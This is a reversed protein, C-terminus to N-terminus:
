YGIGNEPGLNVQALLGYLQAVPIQMNLGEKISKAM